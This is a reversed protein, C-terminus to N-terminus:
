YFFVWFPKDQGRWYQVTDNFIQTVEDRDADALGLSDDTRLLLVYGPVDLWSLDGLADALADFNHGFWEPARIAAAITALFEGKNGCQTLDTELLAFDACAVNARLIEVECGLRYVGAENVDQLRKYLDSM